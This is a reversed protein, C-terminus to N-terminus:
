LQRRLTPRRYPCWNLLSLSKEVHLLNEANEGDSEEASSHQEASAAIICTVLARFLGRSSLLGSGSLLFFSLLWGAFRLFGGILSVRSLLLCLLVQQTINSPVPM